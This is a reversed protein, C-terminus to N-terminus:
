AHAHGSSRFRRFFQNLDQREDLRNAIQLETYPTVKALNKRTVPQKQDRLWLIAKEIDSVPDSTAKFHM